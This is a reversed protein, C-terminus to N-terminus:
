CLAIAAGCSVCCGRNDIGSTTVNYGDREIVKEMCKPCVTDSGDEGSGLNGTYVFDLVRAAVDRLRLIVERKTPPTSRKFSPYYRSLHLPVRRGAVDAIWEAEKRIEEVSDNLGPIILTTLELHRGSASVERITELVPNLSAGTIKRYFTDNFAKLDINFADTTRILKKLPEKEIFGNTVMVSKLGKLSALNQCDNVFEYWVAPENYTFAIGINNVDAAALDTLQEPTIRRGGEIMASQSISHNQCFDCRLNCGYSGVSLIRRGPFFHYLPKKEVPDSALSSIIGYTLLVVAGNRNERVGCIGRQGESLLCHHPCIHCITKM